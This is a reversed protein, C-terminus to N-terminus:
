ASGRDSDDTGPRRIWDVIPVVVGAVLLAGVTGFVVVDLLGDHAVAEVIGWAVFALLLMSVLLVV